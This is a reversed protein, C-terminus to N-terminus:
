FINCLGIVIGMQNSCGFLEVNVVGIMKNFDVIGYIEICKSLVYEVIGVVVYCNGSVFMGNMIMVNCMYDYYFVGMLMLLVSVQWSVGVFLGDDICGMGKVVLIMQQVFLSDVFGMDDKLCLYGVYIKVKSFVYVINVYYIMQKCVLNDSNQQVGVVISFLGMVYLLLVGWVNGKGFLGLIQGLFGGVGILEYNIGILYMVKVMLGEFKGMYKIQNDVYLGGGFVVLLWVNEFYNGVIFLDYMDLLLDFLLMKQCGFIVMGYLSQLGVYVVCNFLCGSDVFVGNQLNVGSEFNFVVKLGGGFDEMGYIGFCSNIIVGNSMLLLGDNKVNVNILYCISVDVVGWFM